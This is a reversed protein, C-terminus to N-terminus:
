SKNIQSFGLNELVNITKEINKEKVMIHDTTFASIAFISIGEAALATAIRSIFGVLEFDLHM